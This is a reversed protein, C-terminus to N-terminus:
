RPEGRSLFDSVAKHIECASVPGMGNLRLIEDMTMAAVEGVTRKGDRYLCGYSRASLHLYEIPANTYADDIKEILNAAAELTRGMEFSDSARAYGRLKEALEARTM